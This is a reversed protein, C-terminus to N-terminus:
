DLLIFDRDERRDAPSQSAAQSLSASHGARAASGGLVQQGTRARVSDRVSHSPYKVRAPDCDGTRPGAALRVDGTVAALVHPRLRRGVAPSYHLFSLGQTSSCRFIRAPFLVPVVRHSPM